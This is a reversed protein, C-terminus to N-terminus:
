TVFQYSDEMIVELSNMGMGSIECVPSVDNWSGDVCILIAQGNLTYGTDCSFNAVAGEYNGTMLLSGNAPATLNPCLVTIFSYYDTKKVNDIHTFILKCDDSEIRVVAVTSDSIIREHLSDVTVTFFEDLEVLIDNFIEIGVCKRTDCFEFVVIESMLAGYDHTSVPFLLFLIDGYVWVCVFNRYEGVTYM